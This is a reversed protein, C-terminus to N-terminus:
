IRLPSMPLMVGLVQLVILKNLGFDSIRIMSLQMRPLKRQQVADLIKPTLLYDRRENVTEDPLLDDLSCHLLSCLQHLQRIWKSASGKEWNAITNESVGLQNALELQTLGARERLTAILNPAKSAKPPKM